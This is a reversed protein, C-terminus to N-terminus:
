SVTLGTALCIMATEDAPGPQNAPWHPSIGTAGSLMPTHFHHTSSLLVGRLRCLGQRSTTENQRNM